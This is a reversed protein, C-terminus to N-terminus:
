IDKESKRSILYYILGKRKLPVKDTAIMLRPDTWTQYIVFTITLDMNVESVDTISEILLTVKVQIPGGNALRPKVSLAYTHEKFREELQNSISDDDQALIVFLVDLRPFFLMHEKRAECAREPTSRALNQNNRTRHEQFDPSQNRKRVVVAAVSAKWKMM